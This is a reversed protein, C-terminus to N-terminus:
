TFVGFLYCACVFLLTYGICRRVMTNRTGKVVSESAIDEPTLNEISELFVSTNQQESDERASIPNENTNM